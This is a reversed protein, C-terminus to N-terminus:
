SLSVLTRELVAPPDYVAVHAPLLVLPVAFLFFCSHPLPYHSCASLATGLVPGIEGAGGLTNRYAAPRMRGERHSTFTCRVQLAPPDQFPQMCELTVPVKIAEGVGIVSPVEDKLQEPLPRAFLCM